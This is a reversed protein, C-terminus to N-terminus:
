PKGRGKAKPDDDEAAKIAKAELDQAKDLQQTSLLSFAKERFDSFNERVGALTENVVVRGEAISDRRTPSPDSFIPNGGKLMHQVSDIRRMLPANASDLARKVAIIHVFQTDSLALDQRHEILLNVPNIPMTVAIGDARTIKGPGRGRGFGGGGMGRQALLTAPLIALMLTFRVLRTPRM